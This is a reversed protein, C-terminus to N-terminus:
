QLTIDNLVKRAIYCSDIILSEKLQIYLINLFVHLLKSTRYVRLKGPYLIIHYMFSLESEHLTQTCKVNM